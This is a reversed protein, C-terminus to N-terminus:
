STPGAGKGKAAKATQQSDSQKKQKKPSSKEDKSLDNRRIKSNVDSSQQETKNVKKTATVSTASSGKAGKKSSDQAPPNSASKTSKTGSTPRGSEKGKNNKRPDDQTQGPKQAPTKLSVDFVHVRCPPLRQSIHRSLDKSM